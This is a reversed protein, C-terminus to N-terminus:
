SDSLKPINMQCNNPFQICIPIMIMLKIDWKILMCLKAEGRGDM